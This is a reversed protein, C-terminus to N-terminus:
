RKSLPKRPLGHHLPHHGDLGWGGLLKAAPGTSSKILKRFPLDYSYSTVFNNTMDYASLARALGMHYPNVGDNLFSSADDMSKGYTYATLFRVPGARKELTAQLSNYDSNAFTAAWVTFTGDM